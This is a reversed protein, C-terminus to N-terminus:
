SRFPARVSLSHAQTNGAHEFVWLGAATTQETNRYHAMWSESLTGHDELPARDTMTWDTSRGLSLSTGSILVTAGDRDFGLSDPPKTGPVRGEVRRGDFPGGQLVLM